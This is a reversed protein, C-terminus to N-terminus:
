KTSLAEYWYYTAGSRHRAFIVPNPLNMGASLQLGGGTAPYLITADPNSANAKEIEEPTTGLILPLFEIPFGATKELAELEKGIRRAETQAAEHSQVDGWSKYSTQTAPTSTRYMLVPQVRLTKGPVHYPRTPDWLDDAWPNQQAAMAPRLAMWSGATLAASAGLFMRRDMGGSGCCKCM